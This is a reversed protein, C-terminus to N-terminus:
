GTPGVGPVQGPENLNRLEKMPVVNGATPNADPAQMQLEFRKVNKLGSLQAMWSFMKAVDYRQAVQPMQQIGLLVEKWLNAQAFRDIPLTGDVPTFDYFGAIDEPRIEMFSNPNAVDGAIKYKRELDYFQQTNQLLRQAHNTFGMADMYEAVTRQRGIGANQAGRVETATKRGGTNVLGQLNDVIGNMRQMMSGVMEQDSLHSRTVDNVPVQQFMTRLDRGQGAPKIKIRKGPNPDLVDKMDLMMPDYVFQNHLSARVNFFHSNFLWTIIDNLPKAQEMVGRKFLSYGDIEQEIVSFPFEAHYNPVPSCEILVDDNAVTFVWMEPYKGDGLGWDKPIVKIYFEWLKVYGKSQTDGEFIVDSPEPFMVQESRNQNYEEGRGSLKKELFEVNFYQGDLAGTKIDNWSSYTERGAYEGKQFEAYTVRPDPFFKDPRTNFLRNGSYGDVVETIRSKVKKGTPTGLYLEDEVKVSSVRHKESVWYDGIVGVGYKCADYLWIYYPLIHKGVYTQYDMLSEVALVRDESEGHRGDYQLIPTRGGLFVSCLYTHLSMMMGFSYPIEIKVFDVIGSSTRNSKAIKDAESEKIYLQQQEDAERWAKYRFSLKRESFCKRARVERVLKNHIRTGYRYEVNGTTM